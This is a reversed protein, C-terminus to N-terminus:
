KEKIKKIAYEINEIGEFINLINCNIKKGIKITYTRKLPDKKNLFQIGENTSNNIHLLLNEAYLNDIKNFSNKEKSRRLIILEDIKGEYIEPWGIVSRKYYSRKFPHAKGARIPEIVTIIRNDKIFCYNDALISVQNNKLLKSVITSKGAKSMGAIVFLKNNLKFASAHILNWEKEFLFFEIPEFITTRFISMYLESLGVLSKKNFIFKSLSRLIARVYKVNYIYTVINDNNVIRSYHYYPTHIISLNDPKKFRITVTKSTEKNKEKIWNNFFFKIHNNLLCWSEYEVKLNDNVWQTTFYKLKM